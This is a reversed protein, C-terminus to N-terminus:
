IDPDDMDEVVFVSAEVECGSLSTVTLIYEGPETVQPNQVDTNFNNPGQWNYSVGPTNSFGLLQAVSDLCDLSDGAVIIDPVDADQVVFANVMTQCGNSATVTLIYEGPETVEPNQEDSNFNNPGSWSYLVNQTTSNGLLQAITILCDLSDGVASADPTEFDGVVIATSIAECGNPALVTLVYDGQETVVPNQEDSTFNNPGAWSYIVGLTTSNGQLQVLSIECNLTDGEATANPVGADQEVIASAVTECGNSASVTLFYEGPETVEPNQEDSIFNNPGTWNYTVGPTVSNGQLQAMPVNCDLTDGIATADPMEFSEGVQVNVNTECGNPAEVTLSYQGAETVEPNQEDSIFNNPGIWNYVVGPTTSNGQLQVISDICNLTGGIANADPLDFDEAVITSETTECGNPATVTLFYEGAETAEPNQENSTFNNPGTWNYTVGPITSNGQLQAIL